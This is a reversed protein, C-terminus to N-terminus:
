AMGIPILPRVTTVSGEVIAADSREMTCTISSSYRQLFSRFRLPEKPLNQSRALSSRVLFLCTIGHACFELGAQEVAVIYDSKELDFIVDHNGSRAASAGARQPVDM